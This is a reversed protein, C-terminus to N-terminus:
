SLIVKRVKPDLNLLSITKINVTDNFCRLVILNIYHDNNLLIMKSIMNKQKRQILCTKLVQSCLKYFGLM